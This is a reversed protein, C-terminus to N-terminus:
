LINEVLPPASAIKSAIHGSKGMGTVTVMGQCANLLSIAREFDDDLQEAIQNLIVSQARLVQAGVAKAQSM